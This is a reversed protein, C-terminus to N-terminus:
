GYLVCLIQMANFVSAVFFFFETVETNKERHVRHNFCNFM